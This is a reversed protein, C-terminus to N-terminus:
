QKLVDRQPRLNHDEHHYEQGGENLRGYSEYSLEKWTVWVGAWARKITVKIGRLLQNQTLPQATFAIRPQSGMVYRAPGRQATPRNDLTASSSVSIRTKKFLPLLLCFLSM